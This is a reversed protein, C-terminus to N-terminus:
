GALVGVSSIDAGGALVLVLVIVVVVTRVDTWRVDYTGHIKFRFSCHM